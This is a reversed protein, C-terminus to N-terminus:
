GQTTPEPSKQSSGRKRVERVIPDILRRASPRDTEWLGRVRQVRGDELVAAFELAGPQTPARLGEDFDRGSKFPVRILFTRIAISRYLARSSSMWPGSIAVESHGSPRRVVLRRVDKRAFGHLRIHRRGPSFGILIAPGRSFERAIRTPSTCGGAAYTKTVGDVIEAVKSCFDGAQDLYTSGVITKQGAALEALAGTQNNSPVGTGSVSPTGAAVWADRPAGPGREGPGRSDSGTGILVGVGILTVLLTFVGLARLRRRRRHARLGAIYTLMEERSAELSAADPDGVGSESLDPPLETDEPYYDGVTV